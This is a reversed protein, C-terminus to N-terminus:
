VGDHKTFAAWRAAAECDGNWVSGSVADEAVNVFMPSHKYIGSKNPLM